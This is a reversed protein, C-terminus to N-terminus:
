SLTGLRQGMRVPSGAHLVREFRAMAPPMVLIVTSGLNFRGLEEGRAFDRAALALRVPLGGRGRSPAIDGLDVLSMSGVNLAGVLVLALPGRVTEFELVIRENLAFLGPVLAATSANVSYLRGPVHWGAVLRADMPLHVRHYDAPALYLCAFRGGVFRAAFAPDALLAALTYTHRKAAVTAQLLADGDLEGIQSIRGDCPSLLANPDPDLPRAAGHLARTFFDNFSRYDGAETREAEGLNVAYLRRFVGILARRVPWAEIRSLAHMAASIGHLPLVKQLAVFLSAGASM